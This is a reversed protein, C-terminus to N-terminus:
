IGLDTLASVRRDGLVRDGEWNRDPRSVHIADLGANHAAQVDHPLDGAMAGAHGNHGVRLDAMALEVPTPDPKWGTEDSCCVVTEFWDRIDLAELVPETLYEQCHTVLGVPQDVATAFAEADEYVYTSQARSEPEEVAHFTEWFRDPDVGVGELIEARANGTGYWLLEAEFDTFGFGLRDGVEGITEHVYSQEIDVVTGDLDLLWFDYESGAM